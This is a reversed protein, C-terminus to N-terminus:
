PVVLPLWRRRLCLGEWAHSARGDYPRPRRNVRTLTFSSDASCRIVGATCIWFDSPSGAAVSEEPRLCASFPMAAPPLRQRVFRSGALALGPPFSWSRSGSPAATRRFVVRDRRGFVAPHRRRDRASAQQTAFHQGSRARHLTVFSARRRDLAAVRRRDKPASAARKTDRGDGTWAKSTQRATGDGFAESGNANRAQGTAPTDAPAAIIDQPPHRQGPM